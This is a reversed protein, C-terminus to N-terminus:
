EFPNTKVNKFPNSKEVPNSGSINEYPNATPNISPLVGQTASETITEAAESAKEIESVAEQTQSAAPEEPVKIKKWAFFGAVGALVIIAVIIILIKKNM